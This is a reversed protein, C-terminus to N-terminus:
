KKISEIFREKLQKMDLAEQEEENLTHESVADEAFRLALKKRGERESEYMSKIENYRAEHSDYFDKLKLLSDTSAEDEPNQNVKMITAMFEKKDM